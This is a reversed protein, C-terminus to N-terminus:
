LVRVVSNIDRWVPVCTLTLYKMCCVDKDVQEIMIFSSPNIFWAPKCGLLVKGSPDLLMLSGNFNYKTSHILLWQLHNDTEIQLCRASTRTTGGSITIESNPKVSYSNSGEGCASNYSISTSSFSLKMGNLRNDGLSNHFITFSKGALPNTVLHSALQLQCTLALLLALCLIRRM